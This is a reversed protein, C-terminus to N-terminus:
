GPHSVLLAAMESALHAGWDRARDLEGDRLPGYTGTVIFHEPDAIPPYGAAQLEHVITKTASGPSWRIKTEFAACRGQGDPLQELWSRLTPISLDPAPDTDRKIGARTRDGPLSFGQLPAGAVILDADAMRASSAEATSLARAEPGIGEAIAQGVARTNGWLSEYVVVAKM